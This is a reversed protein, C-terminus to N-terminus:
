LSQGDKPQMTPFVQVSLHLDRGLGEPEEDDPQDQGRGGVEEVGVRRVEEIHGDDGPALELLWDVKNQVSNIM